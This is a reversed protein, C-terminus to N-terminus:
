HRNRVSNNGVNNKNYRCIQEMPIIVYIVLLYVKRETINIKKNSVRIKDISGKM